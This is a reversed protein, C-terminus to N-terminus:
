PVMGGHLMVFLIVADKLDSSDSTGGDKAAAAFTHLLDIFDPPYNSEELNSVNNTPNRKMISMFDNFDHPSSRRLEVLVAFLLEFTEGRSAGNDFMIAYPDPVDARLQERIRKMQSESLM